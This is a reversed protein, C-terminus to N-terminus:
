QNPGAKKTSNLIIDIMWARDRNHSIEEAIRYDSATM